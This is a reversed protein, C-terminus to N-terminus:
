ATVVIAPATVEVQHRGPGLHLPDTQTALSGDVTIMSGQGSPPIFRGVTGIPLELDAHFRDGEHRWDIAVRGYPSDVSARAWSIADVPHPAFRVVAYGPGTPDPALGALHRYMWDAVAGYAYHNFSLMHGEDQSGSGPVPALTGPHISGDPRIADWREWVTTAGQRVQYLWSPAADCLLMRYATDYRGADALAPLVLPTGLFGTAVRAGADNVLDVLATVLAPREASPVLGFRLAMACGTQTRRADEGWRAWAAAAVLRSLRGYHEASSTDGLERAATATLSASRAFFANAVFESSTQTQWPREPPANPDLWDGFQWSPELLGDDARRLALSDVWRRMSPLQRRLVEIDGYAEYVAWPVITAADAWGARGFRAPGALVVDPVVSPVGLEDDQDLELDRLWSMWFAESQTLFCATSAFVQADGTWGLREDRQPCDTPVSVFNSRLSWLVNEHLRSL